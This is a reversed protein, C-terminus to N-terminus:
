HELEEGVQATVFYSFFKFVEQGFSCCLGPQENENRGAPVRMRFRKLKNKLSILSAFIVITEIEDAKSLNGLKALRVQSGSPGVM